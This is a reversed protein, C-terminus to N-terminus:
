TSAIPDGGRRRHKSGPVVEVQNPVFLWHRYSHNWRDSAQLQGTSKGVNFRPYIERIRRNIHNYVREKARTRKGRRKGSPSTKEKHKDNLKFHMAGLVIDLCQLVDHDHSDVEAVNEKAIRIGNRRFSTNQSLGVLFSRFQEVKEATDPLRDPYIRIDVGGPVAPSFQLGFAHKVFQYYLLFYKQDVHTQSLNIPINTNQTFMVRVKVKDNQVFDFFLDVLDLYRQEYQETIKTWKVEGFLHLENKRKSIAATVDSIDTSRVLAGGYFNSFYRGKEESEDCYIIYELSMKQRGIATSIVGSQVM